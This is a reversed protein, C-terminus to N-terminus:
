QSGSTFYEVMICCYNCLSYLFNCSSNMPFHIGIELYAIDLITSNCCGSGIVLFNELSFTMHSVPGSVLPTSFMLSYMLSQISYALLIQYHINLSLHSRSANDDNRNLDANLELNHCPLPFDFYALSVNLTDSASCLCFVLSM